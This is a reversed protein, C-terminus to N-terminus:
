RLTIEGFKTAKPISQTFTTSSVGISELDLCLSFSSHATWRCSSNMPLTYIVTELCNDTTSTAYRCSAAESCWRCLCDQTSRAATIRGDRLWRRVFEMTSSSGIFFLWLLVSWYCQWLTVFQRWQVESLNPPHFSALATKCVPCLSSFHFSTLLINFIVFVYAIFHLNNQIYPSAVICCKDTLLILFVRFTFVQSVTNKFHINNQKFQVCNKSLLFPSTHRTFLARKMRASFQEDGELQYCRFVSLLTDFDVLWKWGILLGLLLCCNWFELFSIKLCVSRSSIIPKM